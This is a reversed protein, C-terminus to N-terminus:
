RRGGAMERAFFPRPFVKEDHHMTYVACLVVAKSPIYSSAVTLGGDPMVRTYRTPNAMCLRSSEKVVARLYPLTGPEKSNNQYDTRIKNSLRSRIAPKQFMITSLAVAVSDVGAYIVGRMVAPHFAPQWLGVSTCTMWDIRLAVISSKKAFGEAFYHVLTASKTSRRM